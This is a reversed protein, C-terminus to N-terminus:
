YSREEEPMGKLVHAPMTADKPRTIVRFLHFVNDTRSSEAM